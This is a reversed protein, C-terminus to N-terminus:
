SAGTATARGSEWEAGAQIEDRMMGRINKIKFECGIAQYPELANRVKDTGDADIIFKVVGPSEVGVVVLRCSPDARMAIAQLDQRRVDERGQLAPTGTPQKANM